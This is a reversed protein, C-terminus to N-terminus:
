PLLSSSPSLFATTVTPSQHISLPIPMMSTPSVATTCTPLVGGLESGEFSWGVTDYHYSIYVRQRTICVPRQVPEVRSLNPFHYIVVRIITWLQQFINEKKKNRTHDRKTCTTGTLSPDTKSDSFYNPYGQMRSGARTPTTFKSPHM